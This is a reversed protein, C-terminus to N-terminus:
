FKTSLRLHAGVDGASESGIKAPDAGINLNIKLKKVKKVLVVMWAFDGDSNQQLRNKTFEAEFRLKDLIKAAPIDLGFVFWSNDRFQGMDVNGWEALLNLDKLISYQGSLTFRHKGDSEGSSVVAINTGLRLSLKEMPQSELRIMSYINEFQADQPLVGVHIATNAQDIAVLARFGDVPTYNTCFAGSGKDSVGHLYRGFYVGPTYLSYWRGGRFTLFQAVTMDWFAQRLKTIAKDGFPAEFRLHLMGGTKNDAVSLQAKLEGRAFMKDINGTTADASKKTGQVLASATYDTQSANLIGADLVTVVIIAFGLKM